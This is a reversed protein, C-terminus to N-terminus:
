WQCGEGSGAYLPLERYQNRGKHASPPLPRTIMLNPCDHIILRNLSSLCVQEEQSLSSPPAMLGSCRELSPMKILELKELSPVSLERVLHLDM